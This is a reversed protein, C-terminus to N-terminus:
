ESRYRRRNWVAATTLVSVLLAGFGLIALPSGTQSEPM